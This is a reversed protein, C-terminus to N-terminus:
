QAMESAVTETTASKEVGATDGAVTKDSAAATAKESVTKEKEALAAAKKIAKAKEQLARDNERNEKALKKSAAKAEATPELIAEDNLLAAKRANATTEGSRQAATYKAVDIDVPIGMAKDLSAKSTNYSYLATYYNTRAQTLKEQADMVDLNTGVGAAYRVQAIRYDEEAQTVATKTTQINKEAAQLNLYANRVELKISDDTQALNEQAKLLSAEATKVNAATIGNDFINWSANAGAQWTDSYEDDFAKGGNIAKSASISVTPYYGARATSIGTEAQKVSYYAAAGDARNGIAYSTCDDLTLDYKTYKLQESIELVTDTPLGIVNNLTAVAVDYNNQATVLSQQANALQVQSALVDSKAVTGVQYQANVNDLHEQLTNVADQQVNILNRYQLIQYYDATAEYRVAQKTNELTVDAANIGYGANEIANRISFNYVPMGISLQNQFTSDGYGQRSYTEGGIRNLSTSYSLTPGMQRRAASLNWKAADVDALATKIKRNNELAMQVSDKLDLQVTDAAFAVNIAAVTMFGSLVMTTLKKYFKNNQKM